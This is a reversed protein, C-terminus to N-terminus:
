VLLEGKSRKEIKQIQGLKMISLKLPQFIRRHNLQPSYAPLFISNMNNTGLFDIVLRSHHFRCNDMILVLRTDATFIPLLKERWFSVFLEATYAGENLQYAVVGSIGVAMMLSINKGKNGPLNVYCPENKLSYGYNISSHLNFGTEDLYILNSDALNNINRGFLQRQEIIRESNREIPVKVLRKRSYQMQKLLKSITGQSRTIGDDTLSQALMKQTYGADKALIRQIKSKAISNDKFKRGKKVLLIEDDTLGSSIKEVTGQVAGLSIDMEEAMRITSYEKIIMKRLGKLLERTMTTRRKRSHTM